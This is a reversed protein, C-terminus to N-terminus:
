FVRIVLGEHPRLAIANLALTEARNLRTSLLIQGQPAVAALNLEQSIAAFNLVILFRTAGDPRLYALVDPMPVSVTTYDGHNLAPTQQRLAILQKVLNLISHSDALQANVNRTPYDETVPLWPAVTSFGAFPSADWQMPTRELDRSRNIGPENLAMPDQYQEPSLDGNPMGLEDGYYMTPTGRLTLLLMQALPANAADARHASAIRDQDHNGLVWNPWAGQPLVAEYEEILRQIAESQFPAYILSFNFPLHCEDLQAGHYTVLREFPYDIEGILVRNGYEDLMARMKRIIDHTEPRGATYEHLTSQIIPLSPNWAPNPTDDRFLADKILLWIVDVRFGDIGRELWFRMSDFMNRAVDPNRWNLDPQEKTFLHLYYQQTQEDWQWASGGFYSVWNNPPSGDPKPDHWIYWDRKPNERSSRAEQFWPHQDSTHNPVFDLVVNLNRQHAEALLQDFDALTGFLPHIDCYNAVDYGFDVMPSPYIPSIWIATVGLDQLYPLRARIGQLDGVGDGNSDQFSRPYIQYVIGTEWWPPTNVRSM